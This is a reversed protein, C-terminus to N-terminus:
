GCFYDILTSFVILLIYEAKWCMYFYYSASLLLMWRYKQPLVYNGVVVLAFFVFFEISNFSM